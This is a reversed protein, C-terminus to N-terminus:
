PPLEAVRELVPDRDREVRRLGAVPAEHDEDDEHEHQRRQPREPPVDHEHRREVQRHEDPVRPEGNSGLMVRSIMIPTIRITSIFARGCPSTPALRTSIAQHGLRAEEVQAAIEFDNPPSAQM